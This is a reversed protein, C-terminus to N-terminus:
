ENGRFAEGNYLAPARIDIRWKRFLSPFHGAPAPSRSSFLRIEDMKTNQMQCICFIVIFCFGAERRSVDILRHPGVHLLVQMRQM